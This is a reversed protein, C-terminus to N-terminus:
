DSAKAVRKRSKRKNAGVNKKGKTKAREPVAESQETETHIKGTKPEDKSINVQTSQNRASKQDKLIAEGGSELAQKKAALVDELSWNAFVAEIKQEAKKRIIRDLHELASEDQSISHCAKHTVKLANKIDYDSKSM